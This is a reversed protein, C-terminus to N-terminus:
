KGLVRQVYRAMAERVEDSCWAAVLAGPEAAVHRAAADLVPRVMTRENLAFARTPISALERAMRLAQPLLQEPDALEDLFGRALAEEAGYSRGTLVAERFVAPALAARALELVLPPFPVGVSLEPLGMRLSSRAGVRRDCGLALVCGGAIAHGNVAAILPRPFRLMREVLGHLATLFRLVYEEGERLMRVLDVGASFISGRGTLVLARAAHQEERALARELALLLELDLANAKGHALRLIGVEDSQEREIM